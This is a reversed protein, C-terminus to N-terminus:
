RAICIASCQDVGGDAVAAVDRKEVLVDNVGSVSKGELKARFGEVFFGDEYWKAVVFRGEDLVEM